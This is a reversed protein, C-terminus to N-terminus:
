APYFTFCKRLIFLNYPHSPNQISSSRRNDFAEEIKIDLFWCGTDLIGIWGGWRGWDVKRM